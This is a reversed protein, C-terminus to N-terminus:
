FNWLNDKIVNLIKASAGPQYFSNVNQDNSDQVLLSILTEKIEKYNAAYNFPHQTFEPWFYKQKYDYNYTVVKKNCIVAQVAVTSNYTLCIDALVISETINLLSNDFYYYHKNGAIYERYNEISDSVPHPRIIINVNFKEILYNLIEFMPKNILHFDGIEKITLDDNWIYYLTPCFLVTKRSSDIKLKEYLKHKDIKNVTAATYDFIPQGVSFFRGEIGRSKLKKAVNDNLVLINDASPQPYGDGFLDLIQMTKINIQKAAILAAQEFRPSNTTFVLDPKLYQFVRKISEVPLFSQRGLKSYRTAAEEIGYHQVADYMSLGLYFITEFKELNAAPNYNKKLISLGYKLIDDIKDDFLPLFESLKIITVGKIGNSPIANVAVTLPILIIDFLKSESLTPLIAKVLEIHGGGYCIFVIKKKNKIHM